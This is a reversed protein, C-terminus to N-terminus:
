KIKFWVPAPPQKLCKRCISCAGELELKGKDQPCAKPKLPSEPWDAHLKEKGTLKAHAQMVSHQAYAQAYKAEFDNEKSMFSYTLNNYNHASALWDYYTVLGPYLNVPDLSLYMNINPVQNAILPAFPLSRTYGWFRIDPFEQMAATLVVAYERNFIDGSWHLRYFLKPDSTRLEAQKFRNFEAVLINFATEPESQRLISTNHRLLPGVAKYAAITNSVYCVPLKKGEPIQACGECGFTAMPCTGEPGALNMLGYTNRQTKRFRTKRDCTPKIVEIM